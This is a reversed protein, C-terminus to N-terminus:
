AELDAEKLLILVPPDDERIPGQHRLVLNRVTPTSNIEGLIRDGIKPHLELVYFNKLWVPAVSSKGLLSLGQHVVRPTIKKLLVYLGRAPLSFPAELKGVDHLLASVMAEQRLPIPKKTHSELANIKTRLRAAVDLSHRQDALPQRYFLIQEQPALFKRLVEVDDAYIEASRAVQLQRFRSAVSM